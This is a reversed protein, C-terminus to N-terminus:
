GRGKRLIRRVQARSNLLTRRDSPTGSLVVSDVLGAHQVGNSLNILGAADIIAVLGILAERLRAVEVRAKDREAKMRRLDENAAHAMDQWMRIDARAEDRQRQARDRQLVAMDLASKLRDIERMAADRYICLREAEAVVFEVVDDGPLAGNAHAFAQLRVMLAARHPSRTDTM